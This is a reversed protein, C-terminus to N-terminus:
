LFPGSWLAVLVDSVMAVVYVLQSIM